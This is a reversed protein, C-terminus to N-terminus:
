LAKMLFTQSYLTFIQKWRQALIELDEWELRGNVIGEQIANKFSRRRKKKAEFFSPIIGSSLVGVAIIIIFVFIAGYESVSDSVSLINFM